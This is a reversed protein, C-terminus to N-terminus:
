DNDIKTANEIIYRKINNLRDKIVLADIIIKGLQNDATSHHLSWTLIEKQQTTLHQSIHFPITRQTNDDYFRGYGSLINYKTVNGNINEVPLPDNQTMVYDLTAANFKLVTGIRPRKIEIEINRDHLIPRHLQQLPIELVRSIEQPFLENEQVIKQLIREDPDKHRGTAQRWTFDIMDWFATAVVTKGIIRVVPDDFVITVLEIFSGQKPPHLFFKVNPISDGKSRIEGKSTLAHTSIALAKALGQISSAADYLDLISEDATGGTYRITFKVEVPM